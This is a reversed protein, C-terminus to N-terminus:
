EDEEFEVQRGSISCGLCRVFTAKAPEVVLAEGADLANGGLLSFPLTVIYFATGIVTTALLLPRAIIADAVMAGASPDEKIEAAQVMTPALVSLMTALTMFIAIFHKRIVQM